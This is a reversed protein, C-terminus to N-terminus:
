AATNRSGSSRMPRWCRLEVHYAYYGARTDGAGSTASTALATARTAGDHLGLGYNVLAAQEFKEVEQLPAEAPLMHWQLDLLAAALYETTTM